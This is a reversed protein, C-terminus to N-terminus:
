DVTVAIMEHHCTSAHACPRRVHRCPHMQRGPCLRGRRSSLGHRQGPSRQVRTLAGAACGPAAVLSVASERRQWFRCLSQGLRAQWASVTGVYGFGFLFLLVFPVKM